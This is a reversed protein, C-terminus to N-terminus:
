RTDKGFHQLIRKIKWGTVNTLTPEGLSPDLAWLNWRSDHYSLIGRKRLGREVYWALFAALKEVLRTLPTAGNPQANM